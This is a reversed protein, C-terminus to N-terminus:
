LSVHHRNVSQPQEEASCPLSPLGRPTGPSPCGERPRLLRSGAPASARDCSSPAPFAPCRVSCTAPRAPLWPSASSPQGWMCWAPVEFARVAQSTWPTCVAWPPSPAGLHFSPRHPAPSGVRTGWHTCPGGASDTRPEVEEWTAHGRLGECGERAESVEECLSRLGRERSVESRMWVATGQWSM